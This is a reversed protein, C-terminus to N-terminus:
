GSARSIEDARLTSIFDRALPPRTDGMRVEEYDVFHTNECKCISGPKVIWCISMAGNTDADRVTISRSAFSMLPSPGVIKVLM